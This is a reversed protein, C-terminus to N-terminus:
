SEPRSCLFSLYSSPLCFNFLSTDLHDLHSAKEVDKHDVLNSQHQGYLLLLDQAQVSSDLGLKESAAAAEGEGRGSGLYLVCTPGRASTSSVTGGPYWLNKLKRWQKCTLGSAHFLMVMEGCKEKEWLHITRAAARVAAGGGGMGNGEFEFGVGLEYKIFM